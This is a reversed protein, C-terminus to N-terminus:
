STARHTWNSRKWGILILSKSGAIRLPGHVESLAATNKLTSLSFSAVKEKHTKPYGHCPFFVWHKILNGQGGVGFISPYFYDFIIGLKVLM